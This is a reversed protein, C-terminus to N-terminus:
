SWSARRELRETTKKKKEDGGGKDQTETEAIGEAGTEVGRKTSNGM